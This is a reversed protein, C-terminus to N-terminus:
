GRVGLRRAPPLGFAARGRDLAALGLQELVRHRALCTEEPWPGSLSRARRRPQGQRRGAEAASDPTPGDPSRRADPRRPLRPLAERRRDVGDPPTHYGGPTFACRTMPTSTPPVFIRAPM